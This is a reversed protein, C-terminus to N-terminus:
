DRVIELELNSCDDGWESIPTKVAEEKAMELAEQESSAEVEVWLTLPLTVAVNFKKM